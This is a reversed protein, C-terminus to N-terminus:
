LGIFFFGGAGAMSPEAITVAFFGPGRCRASASGSGSARRAHSLRAIRPCRGDPPQVKGAFFAPPPLKPHGAALDTPTLRPGVGPWNMRAVLMNTECFRQVSFVCPKRGM